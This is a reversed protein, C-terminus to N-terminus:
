TPKLNPFSVQDFDDSNFHETLDIENWFKQEAAANKFKPLQLKKKM